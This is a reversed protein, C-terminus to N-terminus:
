LSVMRAYSMDMDFHLLPGCWMDENWSVQDAMARTLVNGAV